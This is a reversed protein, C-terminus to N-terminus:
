PPKSGISSSSGGIGPYSPKSQTFSKSFNTPATYGGGEFSPYATSGTKSSPASGDKFLNMQLPNYNGGSSGTYTKKMDLGGGMSPYGQFSSASSAAAAGGISPYGAPALGAGYASSSTQFQSTSQRSM